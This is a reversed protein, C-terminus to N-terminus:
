MMTTELVYKVTPKLVVNDNEIIYTFMEPVIVFSITNEGVEHFVITGDSEFSISNCYIIAGLPVFNSNVLNV